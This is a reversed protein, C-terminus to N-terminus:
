AKDGKPKGFARIVRAEKEVHRTYHEGMRATRDGLAAAVDSADAGDRRLGAAYSVRLGHLTLGKGVLGDRELKKLWNSMATQLQKEHQWPTGDIRTAVNLSTRTLGDLFAQLEPTAPIWTQEDNKRITLRFCKGYAPDTQYERWQLASITQGRFGAHRALMLAIKLRLPALSRVSEWEDPRWERNSQPDSKHGREMGIAPNSALKGRKVAQTFMSSLATIMKDAFSPWKDVACRDRVEYLAAQTITDLPADYEPQLYALTKIYQAQTSASLKTFGPWENEFWKVLWGLTQDPYDRERKRRSNYAAIRDPLSLEKLLADRNGEFGRLLVDGTTRHYVYWKGRSRVIKLGRLKVRVVM